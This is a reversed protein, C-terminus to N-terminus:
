AHALAAACITPVTLLAACLAPAAFLLMRSLGAVPVTSTSLWRATPAADLPPRRQMMPLPLLLLLRQGAPLPLAYAFRGAAACRGADAPPLHPSRAPLTLPLPLPMVPLLCCTSSCSCLLLIRTTASTCCWCLSLPVCCRSGAHPCCSLLSCCCCWSPHMNSHYEGSPTYVSGFGSRLPIYVGECMCVRLGCLGALLTLACRCAM